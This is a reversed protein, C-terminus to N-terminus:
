SGEVMETVAPTASTTTTAQTSWRIKRFFSEADNIRMTWERETAPMSRGAARVSM